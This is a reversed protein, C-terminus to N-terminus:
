TLIFGRPNTLGEVGRVAGVGRFAPLMMSYGFPLTHAKRLNGDENLGIRGVAHRMQTSAKKHM